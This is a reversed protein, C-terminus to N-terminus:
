YTPVSSSEFPDTVKKGVAVTGAGMENVLWSAGLSGSLYVFRHSEELPHTKAIAAERIFQSTKKEIGEAYKSIRNFEDRSFSVSAVVRSPKVPKHIEAKEIDWSDINELEKSDKINM